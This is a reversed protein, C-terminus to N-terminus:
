VYSFTSSSLNLSANGAVVGILEDKGSTKLFIGTGVALAAPSRKLVYDTAKGHLQIRDVRQFDTILAFDQRGPRNDRGDNYFATTDNGLVFRDARNGGTLVDREGVGPSSATPDVGILVDKGAGGVLVDSDGGGILEDSGGNGFIQDNGIGGNLSDNGGNGSIQDNGAAANATNAEKDGVLVNNNEPALAARAGLILGLFSFGPSVRLAETTGRTALSPAITPAVAAYGALFENFDSDNQFTFTPSSLSEVTIETQSYGTPPQSLLRGIERHKDLAYIPNIAPDTYSQLIAKGPLFAEGALSVVDGSVVYHTVSPKTGPKSQYQNAIAQSTGPSNFTVVEAIADTFEAAAIQALAGGLSHGVVIADQGGQTAQTLWAQIAAKNNQFQTFGVGNLDGNAPDDIAQDGGRFVLIPPKGPATLGLAQFGQTEDAFNQGLNNVQYGQGQTALFVNVIASFEPKNYVYVIEKALIEYIPHLPDM